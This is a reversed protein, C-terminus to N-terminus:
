IRVLLAHKFLIHDILHFESYGNFHYVNINVSMSLYRPYVSNFSHM